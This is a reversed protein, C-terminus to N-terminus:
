FINKIRVGMQILSDGLIPFIIAKWTQKLKWGDKISYKLTKFVNVWDRANLMVRYHFDLLDNRYIKGKPPLDQLSLEITQPPPPIKEARIIPDSGTQEREDAFTFALDRYFTTSSKHKQTASTANLRVFYSCYNLVCAKHNELLRLWLDTDESTLFETRYGKLQNFVERRMLVTAHTIPSFPNFQSRDVEMFPRGKFYSNTPQKKSYAIKARDTMFAIQTSVLAVDANQELFNVQKELQDPLCIDDADHRWIYKGKALKLGNNLSRAVGQNEQKINVIRENKFSDIISETTDTSGDNIIIFEFDKFSQNLVSNIAANLYKEGNYVPMLISVMLAM